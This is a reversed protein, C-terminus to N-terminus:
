KEMKLRCVNAGPEAATNIWVTRLQMDYIMDYMPHHPMPVLEVRYGKFRESFRVRRVKKELRRREDKDM